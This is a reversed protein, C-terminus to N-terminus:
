FQEKQYTKLREILFDNESKWPEKIIKLATYRTRTEENFTDEQAKIMFKYRYFRHESGIAKIADMDIFGSSLTNHYEDATMGGLLIEGEKRFCNLWISGAKIGDSICFLLIYVYTPNDYYSDCKECRWKENTLEQILKKSCTPCSPYVSKDDTRIMEVNARSYFIPEERELAETLLLNPVKSSNNGSDGTSSINNLMELNAAKKYWNFLRFCEKFSKLDKRFYIEDEESANLRTGGRYLSTRCRKVGIVEGKPFQYRDSSDGWINLEIAAVGEAEPETIKSDDVLILTRVHRVAGSKTNIEKIGRDEHIVGIFDITLMTEKGVLKEIPTFEFILDAIEM